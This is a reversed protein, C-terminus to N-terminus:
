PCYLRCRVVVRQTGSLTCTFLTMDWDGSIMKETDHSDLIETGCVEYIYQTNHVDKLIVYDGDSLNKIKGFHSSYNHAAIVLKNENQYYLCPAIDLNNYNWESLVPLNIGIEPIEITGIYNKEEIQITDFAAININESVGSAILESNSSEDEIRSEIINFIEESKKGTCYDRKVNWVVMFVATLVTALGLIMFSFGLKSKM